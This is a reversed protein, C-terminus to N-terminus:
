MGLAALAKVRPDSAIAAAADAQAAAVAAAFATPSSSLNEFTFDGTGTLDEPSKPAYMAQGLMSISVEARKPIGRFDFLVCKSTVTEIGGFFELDGWLFVCMPPRAAGDDKSYWRPITMEHLIKIDTLVSTTDAMGKMAAVSSIPAMLMATNMLGGEPETVDLVIEFSLKDPRACEWQLGGWAGKGKNRGQFGSSRELTLEKPNYPLKLKLSAELCVLQAKVPDM